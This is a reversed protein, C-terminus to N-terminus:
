NSKQARAASRIKDAVISDLLAPAVSGKVIASGVLTAPTAIFGLSRAQRSNSLVLDMYREELVCEELKKQDHIKAEVAIQKWSNRVGNGNHRFAAEHFESFRGQEAACHAALHIQITTLNTTDLVFDKIVTAVHQPYRDRIESLASNFEQCWSCTYDMYEIITVSANDSGIKEGGKSLKFLEARSFDTRSSKALAAIKTADLVNTFRALLLILVIAALSLACIDILRKM